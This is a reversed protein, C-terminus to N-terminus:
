PAIKRSLGSLVLHESIEQVQHSRHLDGAKEHGRWAVNGNVSRRHIAVKSAHLGEVLLSHDHWVVVECEMDGIKELQPAGGRLRPAKAELSEIVEKLLNGRVFSKTLLDCKHYIWM